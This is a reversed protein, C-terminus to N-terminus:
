DPLELVPADRVMGDMQDPVVSMEAAAVILDADVPLLFGAEVNRDASARVAAVYDEHSAYLSSLKTVDFPETSGFLLCFFSGAQGEGSLTATPVEIAPLRIGGLANGHEDRVIAVPPGPNVEIRDAHAPPPGGRVWQHLAHLAANLVFHQPGSNIPADCEFGALPSSSVILRAADPSDGRDTAGLVVTYADAHATGAVEWLRVHESDPQRTPFSQLMTLDTETQFIMVPVDIDERIRAAGPVAIPAQPADALNTGFGGRSHIFFGDFVDAVPHVANVYTVLRFASQSEGIAIVKEVPVDGVLNAGAPSRMLKGAQSFIDYSFSDGPHHLSAYREADMTKLPMSPMGIPSVGGEVGVFQASVGVWVYGERILETHGMIWDAASDLGGSVNLWEVIVTGHFQESAIPRHVLIRTRYAASDGPEVAWVGDEGLPGVSTYAMATGSVFYEEQVYGKESLDFITAAVFPAGKGGNIPGEVAPVPVGDPRPTRTPANTETPTPTETM